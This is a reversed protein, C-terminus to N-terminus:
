KIQEGQIQIVQPDFIDSTLLYGECIIEVEKKICRDFEMRNNNNNTSTIM